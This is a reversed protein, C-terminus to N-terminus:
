FSSGSGCVIFIGYAFGQMCHPSCDNFIKTITNGRCWLNLWFLAAATAFKLFIIYLTFFKLRVYPLIPVFIACLVILISEILNNGSVSHAITSPTLLITYFSRAIPSATLLLTFILYVVSLLFSLVVLLQILPPCKM